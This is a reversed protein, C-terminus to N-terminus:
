DRRLSRKFQSVSKQNSDIKLNKYSWISLLESLWARTLHAGLVTTTQSLLIVAWTLGRIKEILKVNISFKKPNIWDAITSKLSDPSARWPARIVGWASRGIGASSPRSREAFYDCSATNQLSILHKSEIGSTQLRVSLLDPTFLSNWHWLWLSSCEHSRCWAVKKKQVITITWIRRTM